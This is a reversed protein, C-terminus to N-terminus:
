VKRAGNQPYREKREKNRKAVTSGDLASKKVAKIMDASAGKDLDYIYNVSPAFEENDFFAILENVMCPSSYYNLFTKNYKQGIKFWRRPWTEDTYVCKGDKIVGKQTLKQIDHVALLMMETLLVNAPDTIRKRETEIQYFEVIDAMTFM